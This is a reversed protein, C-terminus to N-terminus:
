KRKEKEKEQLYSERWLSGFFGATLLAGTITAIILVDVIM